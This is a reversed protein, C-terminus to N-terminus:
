ASRSEDLNETPSTRTHHLSGGQMAECLVMKKVREAPEGTFTLCKRWRRRRSRGGRRGGGLDSGGVQFLIQRPVETARGDICGRRGREGGRIGRVTAGAEVAEGGELSWAGQEASRAAGGGARLDKESTM